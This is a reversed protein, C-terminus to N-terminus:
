GPAATVTGVDSSFRVDHVTSFDPEALEKVGFASSREDRCEVVFQIWARFWAHVRDLGRVHAIGLRHPVDDLSTWYWDQDEVALARGIRFGNQLRSTAREVRTGLTDNTPTIDPLGVIRDCPAAQRPFGYV